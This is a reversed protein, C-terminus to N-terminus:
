LDYQEAEIRTIFFHIGHSCEAWRNEDFSDPIIRQGVRYEVDNDYHSVAVRAGIISMVDAFEARCKRGTANLRKADEPIRLKVICHGGERTRAKKWGIIAGEPVVVTQAQAYEANKAEYLNAEYLDAGSLDARYLDARSLDAGYLDAGSLNVGTLDAGSLDAGSLDAREGGEENNLWLIHKECIEKLEDKNVTRGESM